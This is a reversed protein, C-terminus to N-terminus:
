PARAHYHIVQDFTASSVVGNPRDMLLLNKTSTDVNTVVFPSTWIPLLKKNEDPGHTQRLKLVLDGKRFAKMSTRQDYYQRKQAMSNGLKDAM